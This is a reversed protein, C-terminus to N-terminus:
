TGNSRIAITQRITKTSVGAGPNESMFAPPNAL